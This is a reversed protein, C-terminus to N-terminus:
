DRKSNEKLQSSTTKTILIEKHNMFNQFLLEDEDINTNMDLDKEDEQILDLVVNLTEINEFCCDENNTLKIRKAEYDDGTSKRKSSFMEYFEKSEPTTKVYFQKLKKFRTEKNMKLVMESLQGTSIRLIQAMKEFQSRLKLKKINFKLISAKIEFNYRKIEEPM